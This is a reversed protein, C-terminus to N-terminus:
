TWCENETARKKEKAKKESIDTLDMNLANYKENNDTSTQKLKETWDKM